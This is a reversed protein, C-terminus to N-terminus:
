ERTPDERSAEALGRCVHRKPVAAGDERLVTDEKVEHLALPSAQQIGLPRRPDVVVLSDKNGGGGGDEEEEKNEVLADFLVLVVM